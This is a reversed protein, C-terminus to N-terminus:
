HNHKHASHDDTKPRKQVKFVIDVDGAKEFSLTADIKDGVKFPKDLGMFMVHLNRPKLTVTEGAAIPINAVKKMAAVGDDSLEVTHLEVRPFDARVGLLVDAAGTNQIQMYGAGAKGTSPYSFPHMIKIDGAQYDHASLASVWFIFAFALYRM